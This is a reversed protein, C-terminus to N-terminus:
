INLNRLGVAEGAPVFVFRTAIVTCILIGVFATKSYFRVRKQFTKYQCYSNNCVFVSDKDLRTFILFNNSSDEFLLAFFRVIVKLSKYFLLRLKLRTATLVFAVCRHTAKTKVASVCEKKVKGIKLQIKSYLSLLSM